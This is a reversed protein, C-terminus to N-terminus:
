KKYLTSQGLYRINNIACFQSLTENFWAPAQPHLMVSDIFNPVHSFNIRKVKASGYLKQLRENIDAQIEELSKDPWVAKYFKNDSMVLLTKAHNTFEEMSFKTYHILRLEKEHKFAKRKICLFKYFDNIDVTSNELMKKYNNAYVVPHLTTEELVNFDQAKVAIRISFSNHSYIRWLADSESLSTWSQCYLNPDTILLFSGFAFDKFNTSIHQCYERYPALEQPDEWLTPHVLALGQSQVMDVFSEFSMFRFVTKM